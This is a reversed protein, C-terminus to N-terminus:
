GIPHLTFQQGVAFHLHQLPNSRTLCHGVNCALNGKAYICDTGVTSAQEIIEFEAVIRFKGAIREVVAQRLKCAKRDLNGLALGLINIFSYSKFKFLNRWGIKFYSNIMGYSNLHRYGELPKIISPRFLLIVDLIFKVDAKRKGIKTLRQRYVEILDGEIHDVLRPHCYWRFFSLFIEPPNEKM